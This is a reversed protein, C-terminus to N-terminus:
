AAKKVSDTVFRFKALWVVSAVIFLLSWWNFGDQVLTHLNVIIVVIALIPSLFLFLVIFPFLVLMTAAIVGIIVGLIRGIASDGDFEYKKRGLTLYVTKHSSLSMKIGEGNPIYTLQKSMHEYYCVDSHAPLM